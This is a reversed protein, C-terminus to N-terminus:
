RGRWAATLFPWSAWGFFALVILFALIVWREDQKPIM